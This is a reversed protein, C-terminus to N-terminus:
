FGDFNTAKLQLAGFAVGPKTGDYTEKVTIKVHGWASGTYGVISPLAFSQAKASDELTYTRTQDACEVELVKPRAYPKPGPTVVLSSVGFGSAEVAFHPNAGEAVFYTKANGDTAHEFPHGDVSAPEDGVISTPADIETLHVRFESVAVSPYDRGPYFGTITLRAKGGSLESGVEVNGVEVFQMGSKDEFTAEKEFVRELGDDGDTFIEVRASKIRGYDGWTKEDKEWGVMLAVKDVKSRPIDIEIWEGVQDSEPHIMWATQPDDDIASAADYKHADHGRDNVSSVRFGALATLPLLVACTLILPSRM